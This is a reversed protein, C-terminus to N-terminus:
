TEIPSKILNIPLFWFIVLYKIDFNVQLADKTMLTNSLFPFSCVKTLLSPTRGRRLGSRLLSELRAVYAPDHCRHELSRSATFPLLSGCAYQNAFILRIYGPGLLPQKNEM